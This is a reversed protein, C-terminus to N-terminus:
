CRESCDRVGYPAVTGIRLTAEEVHQLRFFEALTRILALFLVCIGVQALRRARSSFAERNM